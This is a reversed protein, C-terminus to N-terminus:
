FIDDESVVSESKATQVPQKQDVIEESADAVIEEDSKEDDMPHDEQVEQNSKALIRTIRELNTEGGSSLPRKTEEVKFMSKLKKSADKEM